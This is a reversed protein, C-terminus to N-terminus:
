NDNSNNEIILKRCERCRMKLDIINKEVDVDGCVFSDFDPLSSKHNYGRCQMEQVLEQHRTKINHVEILRNAIYGDLCIKRNIIGVLAHLERHEGLLHNRCLMKPDVNWM